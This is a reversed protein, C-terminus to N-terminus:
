AHLGGVMHLSEEPQRGNSSGNVATEFLSGSGLAHIKPAALAIRDEIIRKYLAVYNRAMRDATFREEFADRCRRRDIETLRGVAEAMESLNESVFGTVGNDIIEPIAGRRYALVPTGCALAEILVLRAPQRGRETTFVIPDAAFGVVDALTSAYLTVTSPADLAPPAPQM